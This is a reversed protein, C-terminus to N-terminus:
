VVLRHPFGQGAVALNREAVWKRLSTEKLIRKLEAFDVPKTLYGNMGALACPERTLEPAGATIAIIPMQLGAHRLGEACEIGSMEPMDLDTLVVDYSGGLAAYLCERGNEATRAEYGLGRLMLVLLRRNIYNDEAILIQLPFRSAFGVDSSEGEPLHPVEGLRTEFSDDPM